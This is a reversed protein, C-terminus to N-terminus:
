TGLLALGSLGPYLYYQGGLCTVFKPVNLLPRPRRPATVDGEIMMSRAPLASGIPDRAQPVNNALTGNCWVKQVFEFQDSIDANFAVFLLGLPETEPQGEELPRGFPM